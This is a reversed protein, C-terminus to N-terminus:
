RCPSVYDATPLYRAWEERTLLATGSACVSAAVRDPDTTWSQIVGAAGTALVTRDDAGFQVDYIRGPYARLRAVAAPHGRRTVDWLWLDGDAAGAAVLRGDRSFAGGYITSSPGTMEDVVQPRTPDSIDVVKVQKTASTVVVSRQDPSFRAALALTDFMKERFLIRPARRDSLDLLVVYGRPTTVIARTGADDLNTWAVGDGIDVAATSTPRAPDSIDVVAFRNSSLTGAVVLESRESIDVTEALDPLVKLPPGALVPRAPDSYDALFVQGTVSGAVALRGSAGLSLSAFKDGPPPALLPGRRTIDPGEGIRWQSLSGDTAANGSIFDTGRADFAFQFTPDVGAQVGPDDPGWVRLYGDESLGAVHDGDFVASSVVAGSKLVRDPQNGRLDVVRSTNDSSAGLLRGGDPSFDVDNVYSEFGTLDRTLVPRAPDTLSYLKVDRSNLAVALDGIPSFTLARAEVNDSGPLPISATREIRDAVVRYLDVRKNGGRATALQSGNRSLAVATGKGAVDAPLAVPEWRMGVADPGGAGGGASTVRRFALTGANDVAATLLDGAPDIALDRVTEPIVPAGEIRRPRTRDSLDWITLPAAGATYLTRSDAGFAVAYLPLERDAGGFEALSRGVGGTGSAFLRVRNDANVVAIMSGDPSRAISGPGSATFHRVPIAEASADLVSSRAEMTPSLRYASMALQVALSPDTTRLEDAQVALQASQADRRLQDTAREQSVAESRAVIAVVAAVLAVVAFVTAAMAVRRLQRVHRRQVSERRKERDTALDLFREERPRLRSGNEPAAAFETFAVLRGGRPLLDPSRDGEEWMQMATHLRRHIVLNARDEEIWGALRPWASFLTEHTIEAYTEAVTVLRAGAFRELVEAARRQRVDRKINTNATTIFGLEDLAARRRTAVEDDVHSMSLMQRRAVQKEAYDLGSYVKEATQEVAGRIRGTALYDAVTLRRKDSASWTSLLAHSLLPLSGAYGVTAGAPRLDALLLEVLDDAVDLGATRAPGVIVERLGADDLGPVLVHGNQLATALRPNGAVSGYHDARIALVIVLQEVRAAPSLLADAFSMRVPADDVLTWLEELQDVALVVPGDGAPLGAVAEAVAASPDASPTMLAYRWGAFPGEEGIRSLLGARLMSSKGAGSSGVLTIIPTREHGAIVATPREVQDLVTDVLREVADERGFFWDADEVQFSEFGRYPTPADLSRRAGPKRARAAAAVWSDQETPDTVGCVELVTRFVSENAATPAHKGTFWGSLTGAIAGARSATERISLGANERIETLGRALDERTRVEDPRM